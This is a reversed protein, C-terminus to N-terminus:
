MGVHKYLDIFCQCHVDIFVFMTGLYSLRCVQSRSVKLGQSGPWQCRMANPTPWGTEFDATSLAEDIFYYLRYVLTSFTKESSRVAVPNGPTANESRLQM